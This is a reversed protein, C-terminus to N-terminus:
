IRFYGNAKQVKSITFKQGEADKIYLTPHDVEQLQTAGKRSVQAIANFEGYHSSFLGRKVKQDISSTITGILDDGCYLDCTDISAYENVTLAFYTNPTTASRSDIRCVLEQGMFCGKDFSISSRELGAEQAISSDGLDKLVSVAGHSIRLGEYCEEDEKSPQSHRKKMVMNLRPDGFVNDALKRDSERWVDGSSISFGVAVQYENTVDKIEAKTRILFRKLSNTLNDEIGGENLLLFHNDSLCFVLMAFMTKGSANLLLSYRSKNVALYDIDASILAQLFKRSEEGEVSVINPFIQITNGDITM